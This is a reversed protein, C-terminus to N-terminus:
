MLVHTFPGPSRSLLLPTLTTVIPTELGLNWESSGQLAPLLLSVGSVVTGPVGQDEWLGASPFLRELSPRQSTSPNLLM